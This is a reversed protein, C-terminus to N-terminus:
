GTSAGLVFSIADVSDRHMLIRQNKREKAEIKAITSIVSARLVKPGSGLDYM